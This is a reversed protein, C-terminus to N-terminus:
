LCYDNLAPMTTRRHSDILIRLRVCRITIGTLEPAMRHTRVRRVLCPM